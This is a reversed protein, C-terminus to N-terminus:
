LGSTKVVGQHIAQVKSPPQLQLVEADQEDQHQPQNRPSTRVGAAQLAAPKQGAAPM